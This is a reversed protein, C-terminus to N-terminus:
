ESLTYNVIVETLIEVPEGNLLTPRYRWQRVAELASQTLEDGSSALVRIDESMGAKSIVIELQVQGQLRNAKASAPYVPQVKTILNNQAVEGGVRIAQADSPREQTAAAKKGASSTTNLVLGRKVESDAQVNFERYLSAFGPKDVRLIYSGAPLSEFAFKGDPTTTMQQKASTDPNILSAQANPVATGGPDFVSGAITAASLGTTALLGSLVTRKMPHGGQPHNSTPNITVASATLTLVILSAIAALPLKSTHRPNAELIAYLRDELEGRRAISIAAACYSSSGTFSQAIELLQSAYDSPRLGSALVLADSARESERRLSSRSLWCLPQFWWLAAACNVLLQWLLDHRAIHAVEHLLVTQRRLNNWSLADSPLLIRPHWLGFTFPVIAGSYIFLGPRTRVGFQRCAEELVSTWEESRLPTARRFVRQVQLYGTLVPIAALVIGALWILLIWNTGQRPTGSPALLWFTQRVTVTATGSFRSPVSFSLEPLFASLFPWALLLAFASLLVLHRSRASSRPILRRLAEAGALILGSRIMLSFWASLM